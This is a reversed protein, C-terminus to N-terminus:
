KGGIAQKVEPKAKYRKNLGAVVDRTIDFKPNVLLINDGSRSFIYDYKKAKNYTKLFAQISDRMEMNLQEQEKALESMLRQELEALDQQERALQNQARELEDRTTFGNSEYKKQLASAHNQLAKQKEALTKQANEGKQNLLLNYDKVFEYQSMLSDVEVYAVKLGTIENEAVEGSAESEAAKNNCATLAVIASLAIIFIKKMTKSTNNNSNNPKITNIPKNPNIPECPKIPSTPTNQLM